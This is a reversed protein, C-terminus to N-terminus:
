LGKDAYVRDKGAEWGVESVSKRWMKDMNLLLSFVRTAALM